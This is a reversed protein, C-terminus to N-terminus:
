EDYEMSDYGDKEDEEDVNLELMLAKIRGLASSSATVSLSSHRKNAIVVIDTDATQVPESEDLALMVSGDDLKNLQTQANESLHKLWAHKVNVLQTFEEMGLSIVRDSCHRVIARLGDDAVVCGSPTMHFATTGAKHVHLRGAYTVLVKAVGETVFHVDRTKTFNLHEVFFTPALDIGFGKSVVKYHAPDVPSYVGVRQKQKAQQKNSAHKKDKKAVSAPPAAAPGVAVAEVDKTKELVAVFIGHTDNDHPLVRVCRDLHFSSAESSSPAFMTSRLRLRRRMDESTSEYSKLVSLSDDVVTWSALGPRTQLSPVVDSVDVLTCAGSRLLEAVVAENEVPSFARTAYVLRGGVALLQLSRSALELQTAHFGFATNPTWCRWKEPFKRISGDGSCPVSCLIRDFLVSNDDDLSPFEESKHATVIVSAANAVTQSVMRVAKTASAADHENVVLVGKPEFEDTQDQLGQVIQAARSAGSGNLDLVSHGPQVDLYIPLLMNTPEQRILTGITTQDRVFTNVGDLQKTKRLTKSDVNIKWTAEDFAVPRLQLPKEEGSPLKLVSGDVDFDCELSGKAIDSLSRFTGNIRFHVSPPTELCKTFTRWEEQDFGWLNRYYEEFASNERGFKRWVVKESRIAQQELLRKKREELPLDELPKKKRPEENPVHAPEKKGKKKNKKSKAEVVIVQDTFDRVRANELSPLPIGRRYSDDEEDSSGSYYVAKRKEAVPAAHVSAGNKVPGRKSSKAM